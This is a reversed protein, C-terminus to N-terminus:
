HLLWSPAAVLLCFTTPVTHKMWSLPIHVELHILQYGEQQGTAAAQMFPHRAQALLRESSRSQLAQPMDNM